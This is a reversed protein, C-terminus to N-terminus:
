FDVKWRLGATGQGAAIQIDILHAVVGGNRKWELYRNRRTVGVALLPVGILVLTGGFVLSAVLCVNQTDHDKILSTKCIPSTALNLAGVGTLAAGSILLGLGTSPPESPAVQAHALSPIGAAGAFALAALTKKM